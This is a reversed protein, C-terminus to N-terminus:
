LRIQEHQQLALKISEAIENDDSSQHKLNKDFEVQMIPGDIYVTYGSDTREVFADHDKGHYKFTIEFKKLRSKDTM